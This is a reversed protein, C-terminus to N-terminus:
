EASPPSEDLCNSTMHDERLGVLEDWPAALNSRMGLLGENVTVNKKHHLRYCLRSCSGTEM